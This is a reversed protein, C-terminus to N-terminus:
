VSVNNSHSYTKFCFKCENNCKILVCHQIHMCYPEIFQNFDFNSIEYPLGLLICRVSTNVNISSTGTSTTDNVNLNNNSNSNSNSFLEEHININSNSHSDIILIHNM